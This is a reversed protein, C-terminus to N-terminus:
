RRQMNKTKRILGPNAANTGSAVAGNLKILEFRAEEIKKEIVSTELERMETNKM